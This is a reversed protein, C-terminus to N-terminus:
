RRGGPAEDVPDPEQQPAAVVEQEVSPEPEPAPTVEEIPAPGAQATLEDRAFAISQAPLMEFVLCFTVFGSLARYFRESRMWKWHKKM